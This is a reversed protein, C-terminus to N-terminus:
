AADSQVRPFVACCRNRGVGVVALRPQEGRPDADALHREFYREGDHYDIMAPMSSRIVPQARAGRPFHVLTKRAAAVGTRGITGARLHPSLGSTGAIAPVSRRDLYANIGEAIFTDLLRQAEIFGGAPYRDSSVHGYQEPKPVAGTAGFADAALFKGRAATQSGV